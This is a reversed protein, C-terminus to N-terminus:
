GIECNILDCEPRLRVGFRAEVGERIHAAFKMVEATTAGGRNTIALTHRTSLSVTGSGWDRGYGRPFGSREILWAASLKTGEPDSFQPCERAADPVEPLVPNLFFSGVSWTDHDDPDLLMGRQRRLDLVAARVDAVPVSSELPVGLRDALGAYGIPRSMTSRTLTYTVELVVYRDTHKFVSQRHPGFGCREPGWRELVGNRRDYVALSSLHDSTVTGFAGVNQVPTGGALGPIGSLPELGALGADLATRVVADWEVGADAVLQEGAVEIRDSAVRVVIGDWGADGVVINSGGGVVLVPEGAADAARVLDVLEGSSRATEFRGAPGGLRMATLEALSTPM